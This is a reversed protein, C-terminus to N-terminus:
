GNDREGFRKSIKWAAAKYLGVAERFEKLGARGADVAGWVANLEDEVADLEAVLDPAKNGAWALAGEAWTKNIRELATRFLATPDFSM